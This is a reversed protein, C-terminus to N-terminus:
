SNESKPKLYSNETIKKGAKRLELAFNVFDQLKHLREEPTLKLNERILSRDIDKKYLEIIAQVSDTAKDMFLEKEMSHMRQTENKGYVNFPM